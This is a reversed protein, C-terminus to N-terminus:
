ESEKPQESVKVMAPRILRDKFLYGTQFAEIVTNPAVDDRPEKMVAQHYNPDFAEGTANIEKLGQEELTSYLDRRIMDFGKFTAESLNDKEKDLALAFNDLIPLLAKAFDSNAFKREKVREENMRRKFNQLEAQNRLLKEQLTQVEDKLAQIEEDKKSKKTKKDKKKKTEDTATETTEKDTEEPPAEKVVNEQTTENTQEGKKDNM